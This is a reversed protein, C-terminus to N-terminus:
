GRSARIEAVRQEFEAEDLEDVDAFPDVVKTLYQMAREFEGTRMNLAQIDMGGDATPVFRVPRDNVAYFKPRAKDPRTWAAPWDDFSEIESGEIFLTYLSEEPFDGIRVVWDQGDVRARYPHEADSTGSWVIARGRQSM